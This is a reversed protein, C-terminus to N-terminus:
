ESLPYERSPTMGYVMAPHGPHRRRYDDLWKKAEQYTPCDAIVNAHHRAQFHTFTTM